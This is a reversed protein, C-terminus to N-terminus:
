ASSAEKKPTILSVVEGEAGRGERYYEGPDKGTKNFIHLCIM